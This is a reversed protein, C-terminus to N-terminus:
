IEVGYEKGTSQPTEQPLAFAPLDVAHHLPLIGSLVGWVAAQETEAVKM